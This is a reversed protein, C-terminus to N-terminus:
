KRKFFNRKKKEGKEEYYGYNVGGYGYGYGYGYNYGYNRRDIDVGNLIISLKKIGNENQLRDLIQIFSRRSYDARFVYIPYDAKRIMEVGETVLGVPPNDAIIIDFKTRLEELVEDMRSSIILESPNPPIPGAPIYFLNTVTSKHICEDISNKNILITSMGKDNDVGFAKHIKPKRMDLDIIIVKKGSFAIIGGLNLAVFTKGEGSVTSTLAMLKSGPDTSIFQLNTRLSRFSEAILSKPNKDVVLQSIPISKDYNPIIGLISVDAHTLKTIENLSSIQDHLFYRVLTLLISALLTSILAVLIAQKKGPSIPGHNSSATELVVSQSVFGAKSISFETKKELLLTYYKENINFLRMLRAYELDKEPKGDFKHEYESTKENLRTLKSKMKQVLSNISEILFKKQNDIQFNIQKIADSNPKVQYLLNEKQILLDQIKSTIDKISEGGEVGSTSSILTYIDISKNNLIDNQIMELTRLDLETKMLQDELVSIRSNNSSALSTNDSYNHKKRFAGLETESEKLEMFVSHLQDDIFSLVKKSSESEHEIDYSQFESAITNVIDAAKASNKEKITIGVTKALENLLKIEIKSQINKVLYNEDHKVFYTKERQNPDPVNTHVRLFNNRLIKISFDANSILAGITFPFSITQNNLLYEITGQYGSTFHIYFKRNFFAPNKINVEAIFPTSKYLENEKFTGENYYEVYLDLKSVVRKLFLSSRLIEISGALGDEQEYLESVNLIKTANNKNNIQITAKAQYIFPTYRLYLFTFLAAILAFILFWKLSKRAIYLFLGLEFENSFKTLRDKYRLLNDDSNNFSEGLM